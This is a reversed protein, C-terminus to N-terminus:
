GNSVTPKSSRDLLSMTINNPRTEITVHVVYNTHNVSHLGTRKSNHYSEKVGPVETKVCLKKQLM